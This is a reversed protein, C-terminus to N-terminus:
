GPESSLGVSTVVYLRHAAPDVLVVITTAYYPRDSMYVADDLPLTQTGEDGHSKALPIGPPLTVRRPFKLQVAILALDPETGSSAPSFRIVEPRPLGPVSTCWDLAIAKATRATGPDVAASFTEVGSAPSATTM